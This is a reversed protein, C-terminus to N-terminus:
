RLIIEDMCILSNTITNLICRLFLLILSVEVMRVNFLLSNNYVSDVVQFKLVDVVNSPRIMHGDHWCLVNGRMNNWWEDATDRGTIGFHIGGYRDAKFLELVHGAKDGNLIVIAEVRQENLVSDEGLVAKIDQIVHQRIKQAKKFQRFVFSILTTFFSRRKSLPPINPLDHTL